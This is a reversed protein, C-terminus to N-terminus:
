NVVASPPLQSAYSSALIWVGAVFNTAQSSDGVTFGAVDFGGDIDLRDPDVEFVVMQHTTGTALTVTKADALQVLTDDTAVNSNRWNRHNSIVTKVNTGAVTQAEKLTVVTAHSAAQRFTLVLWAKHANKLSVYSGTVGGNTTVPGPTAAVVKYLEPLTFQYAM